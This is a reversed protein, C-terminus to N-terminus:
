FSKSSESRAVFRLRGRGIVEGFGGCWCGGAVIWYQQMRGKVRTSLGCQLQLRRGAGPLGRCMRTLGSAAEGSSGAKVCVRSLVRSVSELFRLARLGGRKVLKEYVPRKGSGCGWWDGSRKKDGTAFM